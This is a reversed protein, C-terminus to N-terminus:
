GQPLGIVHAYIERIVFIRPSSLNGKFFRLPNLAKRVSLKGFRDTSHGQRNAKSFIWEKRALYSRKPILLRSMASLMLLALNADRFYIEMEGTNNRRKVGFIAKLNGEETRWIQEKMLANLSSVLTLVEYALATVNRIFFISLLERETVKQYSLVANKGFHLM